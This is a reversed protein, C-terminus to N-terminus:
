RSGTGGKAREARNSSSLRRSLTARVRPLCLSSSKPCASVSDGLGLQQKESRSSKTCTRDPCSSVRM